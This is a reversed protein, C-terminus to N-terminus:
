RWLLGEFGSSSWDILVPTYAVNQFPLTNVNNIGVVSKGASGSAEWPM